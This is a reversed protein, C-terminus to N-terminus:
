VVASSSQSVRQGHPMRGGAWVSEEEDDRVDQSEAVDAPSAADRQLVRLLYTLTDDGLAAQAAAAADTSILETTEQPFAAGAAASPCCCLRACCNDDGDESAGAGPVAAAAGIAASLSSSPLGNKSRATADGAPARPPPPRSAFCACCCRLLVPLVVRPDFKEAVAFAAAIALDKTALWVAFFDFAPSDRPIGAAAETLVYTAVVSTVVLKTVALTLVRWKRVRVDQEVVWLVFWGSVLANVAAPADVFAALEGRSSSALFCWARRQVLPTGGFLPVVTALTSWGFVVSVCPVMAWDVSTRASADFVRRVTAVLVFVFFCTEAATSTFQNVAFSASCALPTLPQRGPSSDYAEMGARFANNAVMLAFMLAAVRNWLTATRPSMLVLAAAVYAAAVATLAALTVPIPGTFSSM